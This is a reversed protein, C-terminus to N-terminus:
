LKRKFLLKGVIYEKIRSKVPPSIKQGSWGQTYISGKKRCIRSGFSKQFKMIPEYPETFKQLFLFFKFSKKKVKVAINSVFHNLFFIYMYIFVLTCFEASISFIWKTKTKNKNGFKLFIKSNEAIPTQVM